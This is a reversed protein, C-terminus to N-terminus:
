DKLSVKEEWGQKNIEIRWKDRHREKKEQSEAQKVAKIGEKSM